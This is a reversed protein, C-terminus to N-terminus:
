GHYAAGLSSHHTVRILTPESAGGGRYNLKLRRRTCTYLALSTHTHTSCLVTFCPRPRLKYPTMAATEHRLCEPQPTVPVDNHTMAILSESGSEDEGSAVCLGTGPRLASGAVVQMESSAESPHNPRRVCGITTSACQRVIRWLLCM